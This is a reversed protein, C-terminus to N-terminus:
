FGLENLKVKVLGRMIGLVMALILGIYGLVLGAIANKKGGYVDPQKKIKSLAIYGCIIAIISGTSFATTGIIGFILSAIALGKRKTNPRNDKLIKVEIKKM